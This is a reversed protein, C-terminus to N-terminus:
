EIVEDARVLFDSRLEVGLARAAKLSVVLEFKTPQEVPISGPDAGGFIKHLYAAARRFLDSVDPGYSMLGGEAVARRFSYIAPLRLKAAFAIIRAQHIFAVLSSAVLLSDPRAREIAALAPELDHNEDLAFAAFELKMQRAATEVERRVEAPTAPLLMAIRRAGPVAERLLELAKIPVSAGADFALGTLNGGPRALSAILGREVPLTFAIFVIPISATAAKAALTAQPAVAVIADPKLAVLDRALAPLREPQGEAWRAERVLNRGEVYGLDALGRLLAATLPRAVEAAALSLVGIRWTRVPAQALAPM